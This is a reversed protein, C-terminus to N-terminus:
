AWSLRYLEVTQMGFWGTRGLGLIRGQTISFQQNDTILNFIQIFATDDHAIQIVHGPWTGCAQKLANTPQQIRPYSTMIHISKVCIIRKRQDSSWTKWLVSKAKTCMSRKGCTPESWKGTKRTKCVPRTNSCIWSSNSCVSSSSCSACFGNFLANLFCLFLFFLWQHLQEPM